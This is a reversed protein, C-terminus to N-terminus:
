CMDGSRDIVSAKGVVCATPVICRPQLRRLSRARSKWLVIHNGGPLDPAHQDGRHSRQTFRPSDRRRNPRLHFSPSDVVAQPKGKYQVVTGSLLSPHCHQPHMCNSRVTCPLPSMSFIKRYFALCARCFSSYSPFPCSYGGARWILHSLLRVGRRVVSSQLDPNM